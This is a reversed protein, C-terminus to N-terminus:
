DEFGGHGPDTVDELDVRSLVAAAGAAGGGGDVGEVAALLRFGYLYGCVMISPRRPKAAADGLTPPKPATAAGMHTLRAGRSPRPTESRSPPKPPGELGGM